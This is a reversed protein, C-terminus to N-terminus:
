ALILACGRAVLPWSASGAFGANESGLSAETEAFAFVKALGSVAGRNLTSLSFGSDAVDASEAAPKLSMAFSRASANRCVSLRGLVPRLRGAHSRRLASTHLLGAYRSTM